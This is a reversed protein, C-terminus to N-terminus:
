TCEQPTPAPVAPAMDKLHNPNCRGLATMALAYKATCCLCFNHRWNFAPESWRLDLPGSSNTTQEEAATALYELWQRQTHFCAPAVPALNIVVVRRSPIRYGM